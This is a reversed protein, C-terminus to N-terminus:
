RAYTPYGIPVFASAFIRLWVFSKDPNLLKGPIINSVAVREAVLKALELRSNVRWDDKGGGTDIDVGIPSYNIDLPGVDRVRVEVEDLKVRLVYSVARQLFDRLTVAMEDPVDKPDRYITVLPM